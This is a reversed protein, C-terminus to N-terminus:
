YAGDVVSWHGAKTLFATSNLSGGGNKSRNAIAPAALPTALKAVEHRRVCHIPKGGAGARRDRPTQHPRLVSTEIPIVLVQGSAGSCMHEKNRGHFCFIILKPISM